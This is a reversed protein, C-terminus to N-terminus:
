SLNTTINNLADYHVTKQGYTPLQTIDSPMTVAEDQITISLSPVQDLPVVTGDM